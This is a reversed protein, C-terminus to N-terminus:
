AYGIYLFNGGNGDDESWIWVETIEGSEAYRNLRSKIDRKLCEPDTATIPNDWCYIAEPNIALGVTQAYDKGFIVYDEIQISPKEKEPIPETQESETPLPTTLQTPQPDISSTRPESEIPKQETTEEPLQQDETELKQQLEREVAPQNEVPQAIPTSFDIQNNKEVLVGETVESESLAQNSEDKPKEQQTEERQLLRSESFLLEPTQQPEDAHCGGLLLLTMLITLAKLKTRM